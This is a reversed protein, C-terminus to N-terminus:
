YKIYFLPKDFEFLGGAAQITAMPAVAILRCFFLRQREDYYWNQVLRLKEVQELANNQIIRDIVSIGEPNITSLTDATYIQKELVAQRLPAFDSVSLVTHSPKAVEAAAWARIDFSGKLAACQAPIPSNEMTRTQVLYNAHRYLRGQQKRQLPPAKIWLLPPHERLEGEAGLTWPIPALALLQLGFRRTNKDYFLLQRARFTVFAEPGFENEAIFGQDALTSDRWNFRANIEEMGLLHSLEADAYCAFAGDKIAHFIQQSFYYPLNNESDPFLGNQERPNTFRVIELLNQETELKINYAPNLEYDATVEAAWSINKNPLLSRSQACLNFPILLVPLAALSLHGTLKQFFTNDM